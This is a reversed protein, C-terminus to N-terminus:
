SPNQGIHSINIQRLHEITLTLSTKLAIAWTSLSKVAILQKSWCNLNILFRPRWLRGGKFPIGDRSEIWSFCPLYIVWPKSVKPFWPVQHQSVIGDGLNSRGGHSSEM